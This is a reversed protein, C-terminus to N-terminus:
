TYEKTRPNSRKITDQERNQQIVNTIPKTNTKETRQMIEKEKLSKVILPKELTEPTWHSNFEM